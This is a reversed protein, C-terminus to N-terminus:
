PWPELLRYSVQGLALLRGSGAATVHVTNFLLAEAREHVHADAVVPTAATDPFSVQMAITSGRIGPRRTVMSWSAAVAAIDVISAVAGAHMHGQEDVHAPGCPMTLRVRGPEEHAPTM